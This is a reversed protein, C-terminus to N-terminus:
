KKKKGGIKQREGLEHLDKEYKARIEYYDEDFTPETYKGSVRKAGVSEEEDNIRPARLPKFSHAKSVRNVIYKHYEEWTENERKQRLQAASTGLDEGRRIKLAVKRPQGHRVRWAKQKEAANKYKKKSM